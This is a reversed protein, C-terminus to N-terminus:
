AVQGLTSAILETSHKCHVDAACSHHEPHDHTSEITEYSSYISNFCLAVSLLYFFINFCFSFLITSVPAVTMTSILVAAGAAM